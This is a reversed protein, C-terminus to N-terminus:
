VCVLRRRRWAPPAGQLVGPTAAELRRWVQFVSPYLLHLMLAPPLASCAGAAIRAPDRERNAALWEDFKVGAVAHPWGKERLDAKVKM